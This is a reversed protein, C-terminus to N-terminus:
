PETAVISRLAQATEPALGTTTSSSGASARRPLPPAGGVAAATPSAASSSTSRAIVGRVRSAMKSSMVDFVASLSGHRASASSQRSRPTSESTSAACPAADGRPTSARAVASKTTPLRCLHAQAGRPLANRKARSACWAASSGGTTECPWPWPKWAANAQLPAPSAAGRRESDVSKSQKQRSATPPGAAPLAYWCCSRAAAHACRQAAHPVFVSTSAASEPTWM